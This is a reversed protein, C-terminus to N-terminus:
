ASSTVEATSHPNKCTAEYSTGPRAFWTNFRHQGPLTKCVIYGARRMFKLIAKHHAPSMWTEIVFVDITTAKWDITSLVDLESGEVDLSFFDVHPVGSLYESMPACPVDVVIPKKSAAAATADHKHFYGVFKRSMKGVVGQTSNYAMPDDMFQVSRKPPVCVAGGHATAKPRYLRVNELLKAANTPSGEVLVGSWGRCTELYLTNSITLGDLAGLEVFVGNRKEGFFILSRMEEGFQSRSQLCGTGTPAAHGGRLASLLHALAGLASIPTRHGRAERPPM